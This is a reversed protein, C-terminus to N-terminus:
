EEKECTGTECDPCNQERSLLENRLADLLATIRDDTDYGLKILCFGFWHILDYADSSKQKELSEVVAHALGTQIKYDAQDCDSYKRGSADGITLSGIQVCCTVVCDVLEEIKEQDTHKINPATLCDCKSQRESGSAGCDDSHHRNLQFLSM